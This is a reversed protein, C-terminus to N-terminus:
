YLPTEPDPPYQRLLGPLERFYVWILLLDAAFWAAPNALCIALYHLPKVLWFAVAWRAALEFAGAAMAPLGFGLGQISNRLALLLGLPLAEFRPSERM